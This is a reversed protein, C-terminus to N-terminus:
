RFRSGRGLCVLHTAVTDGTSANAFTWRGGRAGVPTSLGLEISDAPDVSSGTAVSFRGKGCEHSLSRTGDGLLINGQAPRSSRFRLSASGGDRRRGPVRSQVCRAFVAAHVDGSGTNELKFRWGHATPVVAALKVDGNSGAALGYGTATWAPGCGV